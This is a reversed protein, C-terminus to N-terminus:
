PADSGIHLLAANGDQQGCAVQLHRGEGVAVSATVAVSTLRGKRQTAFLAKGTASDWLILRGDEGVSALTRSDPAFAVSLVKGTHEKRPTRAKLTFGSVDIILVLSDNGMALTKGSPSLAVPSVFTTKGKLIARQRYLKGAVDWLQVTGNGCGTALVKGDPSFAVSKVGFFIGKGMKLIGQEVARDGTLEWVFVADDDGGTALRKGDRSFAVANVAKDHRKLEVRQKLSKEDMDYLRVTKDGSAVALTKGDPSVAVCRAGGFGLNLNQLIAWALPIDESVNWTRLSRDGATVLMKGDPSFAVAHVHEKHPVVRESLVQLDKSAAVLAPEAGPLAAAGVLVGLATLWIRAHVTGMLM